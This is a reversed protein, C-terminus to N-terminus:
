PTPTQTTLTLVAELGYIVVAVIMVPSTVFKLIKQGMPLESAEGQFTLIKENKYKRLYIILAIGGFVIAGICTAYFFINSIKEDTVQLLISSICSMANNLGHIVVAPWISDTAIVTYAFFLGCIFAFLIQAANGHFIGFMFASALIAFINGYKRLNSLVVGRMAFEEVLPPIIAVSLFMLVSDTIGKPDEISSYTSYIGIAEMVALVYSSIVNAIMCGGFSILILLFSKLHNKPLSYNIKFLPSDNEQLPSEALGNKKQAKYCRGFILFTGGVVVVTYIMNIFSSGTLSSNYLDKVAPIALLFSFLFAIIFCAILLAGSINGIHRIKKEAEKKKRLAEIREAYYANNFVPAANGYHYQPAGTQTNNYVAAPSQQYQANGNYANVQYAYPNGNPATYSPPTYTPVYQPPYQYAPPPFNPAYGQNVPPPAVPPVHFNQQVPNEAPNADATGNFNNFNNNPTNEM